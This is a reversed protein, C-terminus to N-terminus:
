PTLLFHKFAKAIAKSSNNSYFYFKKIFTHSVAELQAVSFCRQSSAEGVPSTQFPKAEGRGTKFGAGKFRRLRTFGNTLAHTSFLTKNAKLFWSFKLARIKIRQWSHCM